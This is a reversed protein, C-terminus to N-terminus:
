IEFLSTTAPRHELALIPLTKFPSIRLNWTRAIRPLFASPAKIKVPIVPNGNWGIIRIKAASHGFKELGLAEHYSGSLIRVQGGPHVNQFAQQLTKFAQEETTGSNEDSGAPSIYYVTSDVGQQQAVIRTLGGDTEESPDDVSCALMISFLVSFWILPVILKSNMQVEVKVHFTLSAAM